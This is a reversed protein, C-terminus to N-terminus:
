NIMLATLYGAVARRERSFHFKERGGCETDTLMEKSSKRSNM